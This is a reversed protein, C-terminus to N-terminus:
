LPIEPSLILNDPPPCTTPLIGAPSGEKTMGSRSKPTIDVSKSKARTIAKIPNISAVDMDRANAAFDRREVFNASNFELSGSQRDSLIRGWGFHSDIVGNIADATTEFDFSEDGVAFSFVTDGDHEGLAELMKRAALAGEDFQYDQIGLEQEQDRAERHTLEEKVLGLLHAKAQDDGAQVQNILERSLMLKGTEQDFAGYAM